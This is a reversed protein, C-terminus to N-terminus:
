GAQRFQEYREELREPDPRERPSRPVTIRRGAMEQLGHLLMPGDREALLSPRVEVVLDPRVGLLDRDYAAHHLKCLSLGNPVVPVGRPHGDPLIHAADLLEAHRLHCVACTSEYARLVRARFVPQHLRLRTLRALYARGSDDLSGLDSVRQGADLAVTFALGAPDDNVIWVPYCPLYVGRDVGLFYVLPLRDRMAERMARNDSHLPDSGRYAYRVLGDEGIADAYPALRYAPTFTTRITLAASMMAPKWIGSQVLLPLPRDLFWFTNIEASRLCGAPRESLLRDLHRMAAERLETDREGGNNM